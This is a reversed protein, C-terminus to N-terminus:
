SVVECQHAIVLAYTNTRNTPSLPSPLTVSYIISRLRRRGEARWGGCGRLFFWKLLEGFILVVLITFAQIIKLITKQTNAVTM